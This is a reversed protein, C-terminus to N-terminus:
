IESKGSKRGRRRQDRDAKQTTFLDVLWVVSAIFVLATTAWTLALFKNGRNGAIGINDGYENIVHTAKNAIYTIMASSIMIAMFATLDAAANIAAVLRRSTFISGAALVMALAILAISICYLVFVAKQAVKLANLGDHVKDPWHIKDLDVLGNTSDNLEQSLTNTPNFHYMATKNSCETVNKHITGNKITDNPMPGPVYFGECFNMIHASYFDHVGLIQALSNIGDKIEDEIWNQFSDLENEVSCTLNKIDGEIEDLWSDDDESPKSTCKTAKAGHASSSRSASNTEHSGFIGTASALLGGSDSTTSAKEADRRLLDVGFLELNEGIRSTNM